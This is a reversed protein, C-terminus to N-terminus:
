ESADTKAQQQCSGPCSCNDCGKVPSTKSGKLNGRTLFALLLIIGLGLLMAGINDSIWGMFGELGERLPMGDQM